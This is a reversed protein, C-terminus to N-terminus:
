ATDPGIQFPLFQICLLLRIGLDQFGVQFLDDRREHATEGGFHQQKRMGLMINGIQDMLAFGELLDRLRHVRRLARHIKVAVVDLCLQAHLVLSDPQVGIQGREFLM